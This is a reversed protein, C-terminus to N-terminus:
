RRMMCGASYCETRMALRSVIPVIFTLDWVASDFLWPFATFIIDHNRSTKETRAVSARRSVFLAIFRVNDYSSTARNTARTLM